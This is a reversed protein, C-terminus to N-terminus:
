PHGRHDHLYSIIKPTLKGRGVVDLILRAVVAENTQKKKESNFILKWRKSPAKCNALVWRSLISSLSTAELRSTESM